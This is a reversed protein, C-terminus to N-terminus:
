TSSIAPQRCIPCVANRRLWEDICDVHYLHCCPLTKLREGAQFEEMCVLCDTKSDGDSDSTASPQYVHVPLHSIDASEMGVRRVEGLNEALEWLAEYDNMDVNGPIMMDPARTMLLSALLQPDRNISVLRDGGNEDQMFDPDFENYRLYYDGGPIDYGDREAINHVPDLRDYVDDDENLRFRNRLNHLPRDRSYRLNDAVNNNLQSRFGRPGVQLPRTNHRLLSRLSRHSDYPSQGRAAFRSDQNHSMLPSEDQEQLFRALEADSEEQMRRAFRTDNEQTLSVVTPAHVETVAPESLVLEEVSHPIHIPEVPVNSDSPTDTTQLRSVPITIEPRESTFSKGNNDRRTQALHSCPIYLSASQHPSLSDGERHNPDYVPAIDTRNISDFHPFAGQPLFDDTRFGASEEFNQDIEGYFQSESNLQEQDEQQRQHLLAEAEADFMDQLRKAMIFDQNMSGHGAETPSMESGNGFLMSTPLNSPLDTNVMYPRAIPTTQISSAPAMSMSITTILDIPSNGTSSRLSDSNLSTGQLNLSSDSLSRSSKHEYPVVISQLDAGSSPSAVIRTPHSLKLLTTNENLGSASDTELDNQIMASEKRAKSDSKKVNGSNKAWINKYQTLNPTDCVKLSTEDEDLHVDASAAYPIKGGNHRIHIPDGKSRQQGTSNKDVNNNKVYIHHSISRPDCYPDLGSPMPISVGLSDDSNNPPTAMLHTQAYNNRNLNDKKQKSSNEVKRQPEAGAGNLVDNDYKKVQLQPKWGSNNSTQIPNLADTERMRGARNNPVGIGNKTKNEKNKFEKHRVVPECFGVNLGINTQPLRAAQGNNTSQLQSTQPIAGGERSVPVHIPAASVLLQSEGSREDGNTMQRSAVLNGNARNRGMSETEPITLPFRLVSSVPQRSPSRATKGPNKGATSPKAVAATTAVASSSPSTVPLYQQNWSAPGSCFLADDDPIDISNLNLTNLM